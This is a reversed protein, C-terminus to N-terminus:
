ITNTFSFVRSYWYKRTDKLLIVGPTNFVISSVEVTLFLLEHINVTGFGRELVTLARSLVFVGSSLTADGTLRGGSPSTCPSLIRKLFHKTDTPPHPPPPTYLCACSSHFHVLVPNSGAHRVHLDLTSFLVGVPRLSESKVM